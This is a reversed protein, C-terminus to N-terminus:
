RQIQHIKAVFDKEPASDLPSCCCAARWPYDPTRRTPAPYPRVKFNAGSGVGGGSCVLDILVRQSVLVKYIGFTCISDVRALDSEIDVHQAFLGRSSQLGLHKEEKSVAHTM